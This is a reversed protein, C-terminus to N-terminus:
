HLVAMKRATINMVLMIARLKKSAMALRSAWLVDEDYEEEEEHEDDDGGGVKLDVGGFALLKELLGGFHTAPFFFM